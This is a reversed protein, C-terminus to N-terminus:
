IIMFQNLKYRATMDGAGAPASRLLLFDANHAFCFVNEAGILSYVYLFRTGYGTCAKDKYM